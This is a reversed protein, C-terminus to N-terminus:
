EAKDTPPEKELQDLIKQLENNVQQLAAILHPRAAESAQVASSKINSAAAGLEARFKQGEPSNATDKVAESVQNAMDNLGSRIEQLRQQNEEKEWMARFTNALGEGLMHFQRGIEQWSDSGAESQTSTGPNEPEDTM